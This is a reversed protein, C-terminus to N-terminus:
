TSRFESNVFGIAMSALSLQGCVIEIITRLEHEFIRPYKWVLLIRKTTLTKLPSHYNIASQANEPNKNATVVM